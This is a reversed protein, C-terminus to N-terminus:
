MDACMGAYIEVCICVHRCACMEDPDLILCTCVCMGVCTGERMGVYMGVCM